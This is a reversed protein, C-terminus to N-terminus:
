TLQTKDKKFIATLKDKYQSFILVLLLFLGLTVNQMTSPLGSAVLGVFIINLSFQGILIGVLLNCLRELAMGVMVGMLPKFLLSASALNIEPSMVSSLSIQLITAIALFLSGIIHGAIKTRKVNVGMRQAIAEDSGVARAHYSFKTRNLLIYFLAASIILVFINYPSNALFSSGEDIRVYIMSGTLEQGIVEFILAIAITIVLSPVKVFKEFIGMICGSLLCAAITGLILGWFGLQMSLIGGVLGSVVMRSGVSFDMIGCLFSFCIGYGIITSIISQQFITSLTKFSAFSEFNILLFVLYVAAPLILAKLIDVSKKM